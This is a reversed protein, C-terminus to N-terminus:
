RCMAEVMMSVDRGIAVMVVITVVFMTFQIIVSYGNM